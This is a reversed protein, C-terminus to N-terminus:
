KHYEFHISYKGPVTIVGTESKVIPERLVLVVVAASHIPGIPIDRILLANCRPQISHGHRVLPLHLLPREKTLSHVYV